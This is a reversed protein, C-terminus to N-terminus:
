VVYCSALRHEVQDSKRMVCGGIINIRHCDTSQSFIGQVVFMLITENQVHFADEDDHVNINADDDGDDDDNINDDNHDDRDCDHNNTVDDMKNNDESDILNDKLRSM